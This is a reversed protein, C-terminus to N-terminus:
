GTDTGEGAGNPGNDQLQATWAVSGVAGGLVPTRAFSIKDAWERGPLTRRREGSRVVAPSVIWTGALLGATGWFQGSRRSSGEPIRRGCLSATRAASVSRAAAVEAWASALGSSFSDTKQRTKPPVNSLMTARTTM